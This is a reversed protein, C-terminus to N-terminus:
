DYNGMELSRNIYGWSSDAQNQHYRDFMFTLGRWQISLSKFLALSFQSFKVYNM